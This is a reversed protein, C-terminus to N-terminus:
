ETERRNARLDTEKEQWGQSGPTWGGVGWGSHLQPLDETGSHAFPAGDQTAQDRASFHYATQSPSVSLRASLLYCSAM